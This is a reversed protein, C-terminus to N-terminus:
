KEKALRNFIADLMFEAIEVARQTTLSKPAIWPANPDPPPGAFLTERGLFERAVRRNGEEYDALLNARLAPPMFHCADPPDPHLSSYDALANKLM